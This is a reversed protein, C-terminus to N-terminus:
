SKVVKFSFGRRCLEDIMSTKSFASGSTLVGGNQPIKDSETLVIKAATLLSVCTAGYGPNTGSVEIIVQKTPSDSPCTNATLNEVPAWGVGIMTMKFYTKSMQTEDITSKTVTGCSFFNPHKLLLKRGCKCKTFLSFITGIILVKLVQWCTRVGFYAHMQIPRKREKDYFFRQTRQVVSRDSGPFDM